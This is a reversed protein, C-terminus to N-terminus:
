SGKHKCAPQQRIKKILAKEEFYPYAGKIKKYTKLKKIVADSNIFTRAPDEIRIHFDFTLVKDIINLQFGNAVSSTLIPIAVFLIVMVISIMSMQSIFLNSRRKKLYKSSIFFEFRM